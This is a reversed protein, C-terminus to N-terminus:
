QNVEVIEIKIKKAVKPWTYEILDLAKATACKIALSLCNSLEQKQTLGSIFGALLYDGCALTSSAAAASDVVARGSLVVEKTIIMAGKSGRSVLIMEVKDLLTRSAKIIAKENNPIKVGLLESLELLNPKILKLSGTSVIAALPKGSTDVIINGGKNRCSKILAITEDLYETPMSGSFAVYDGPRILQSLDKKLASISRTTALPSPMRLHLERGTAPDILNINQRTRGLAPTFAIKINKLPKLDAIATKIDDSGWLGAAVSKANMWDLARCINLSKGAPHSSILDVTRHQGWKMDACSCVADWAPSLAVTVIKADNIRAM